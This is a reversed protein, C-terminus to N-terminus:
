RDAVERKLGCVGDNIGPRRNQLRGRRSKIAMKRVRQVVEPPINTEDVSGICASYKLLLSQPPLCEFIMFCM